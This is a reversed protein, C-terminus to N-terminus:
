ANESDGAISDLHIAGSDQDAEADRFTIGLADQALAVRVGLHEAIGVAALQDPFIDDYTLDSVVTVKATPHIAKFLLSTFLVVNSADFGCVYIEEPPKGGENMKRTIAPFTSLKRLRNVRTNVLSRMCSFLEGAREEQELVPEISTAFTYFGKRGKLQSACDIIRKAVARAAPNYINSKQVDMFLVYKM